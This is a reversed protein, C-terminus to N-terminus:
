SPGGGLIGSGVIWANLEAVSSDCGIAMRLPTITKNTLILFRATKMAASQPGPHLDDLYLITQRFAEPTLLKMAQSLCDNITSQQDRNQNQLTQAIGDKVACQQELTIRQARLSEIQTALVQREAGISKAAQATENHLERIKSVLKSHDDGIALIVCWLFLATWAVSAVTFGLILNDKWHSRM